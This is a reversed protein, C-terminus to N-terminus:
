LKTQNRPCLTNSRTHPVAFHYTSYHFNSTHCNSCRHPKQPPKLTFLTSTSVVALISIPLELIGHGEPADSVLLTINPNCQIVFCRDINLEQCLLMALTSHSELDRVVHFAWIVIQLFRLGSLVRLIANPTAIYGWQSSVFVATRMGNYITCSKTVRFVLTWLKGRRTIAQTAVSSNQKKLNAQLGEFDNREKTIAM